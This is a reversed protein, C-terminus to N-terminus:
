LHRTVRRSTARRRITKWRNLVQKSDAVRRGLTEISITCYLSQADPLFLANMFELYHGNGRSSYYIAVSDFFTKTDQSLNLRSPEYNEPRGLLEMAMTDGISKGVCDTPSITLIFALFLHKNSDLIKM